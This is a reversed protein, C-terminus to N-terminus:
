APDTQENEKGSRDEMDVYCEAIGPNDMLFTHIFLAIWRAQAEDCEQNVDQQAVHVAEHWLVKLLLAIDVELDIHIVGDKYASIGLTGESSHVREMQQLQYLRGFILLEQPINMM